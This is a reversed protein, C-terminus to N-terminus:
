GDARRAPRSAGAVLVERVGRAIAPLQLLAVAGIVTWAPGPAAPWRSDRVFEAITWIPNLVHGVHWEDVHGQAFVDFLTPLLMGLFFLVPVLFRAAHNGLPSAPLLGRLWRGLALWAIAYAVTLLSMREVLSTFFTTAAPWLLKALGAVVAVFLVFCLMGRDRGPLLPAALVGVLQSGPAHARLRPSLEAQETVMMLGFFAGVLLLAYALVPAVDRHNSADVFALMWGFALVPLTFLMVRFPTSKNEFAHLLFSRAVLLSLAIAVAALLAIASMVAWFENSRLVEGVGRTYEGSAVFGVGGFAAMGLGFATALNAIAQFGPLVAQAASSVAFATATACALAAFVLSIAITPVDVGRLLYSTALLPALLAVYVVFQVLAAQLKGLLIHMPRLRSLLLQEVIGARLELRMSQYAQMPVVFVLLPILTAFGANFATRGSRGGPEYRSAVMAAITVAIALAIFVTLAFVRGKVAQQVERVLIPNLRDSWRQWRGPPAPLPPPAALPVAPTSTATM